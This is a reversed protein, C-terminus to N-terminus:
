EKANYGPFSDEGLVGLMSIGSSNTKTYILVVNNNNVNNNNDKRPFKNLTKQATVASHKRLLM